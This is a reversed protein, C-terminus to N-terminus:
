PLNKHFGTVKDCPTLYRSQQLLANWLKPGMFLFSRGTTGTRSFTISTPHVAMYQLKTFYIRRCICLNEMIVNHLNSSIMCAKAYM